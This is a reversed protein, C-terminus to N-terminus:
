LDINAVWNSSGSYYVHVILFCCCSLFLLVATNSSVTYRCKKQPPLPPITTSYWPTVANEEQMWRPQHPPPPSPSPVLTMSYALFHWMYYTTGLARASSTSISCYYLPNFHNNSGFKLCRCAGNRVYICFFSSAFNTIILIVDVYKINHLQSTCKGFELASRRRSSLPCPSAPSPRAPCSQPPLSTCM